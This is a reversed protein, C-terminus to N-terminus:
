DKKGEESQPSAVYQALFLSLGSVIVLFFALLLQLPVADVSMVWYLAGVFVTGVGVAKLTTDLFNVRVPLLRVSAMTAAILAFMPAQTASTFTDGNTYGVVVLSLAIVMVPLSLGIKLARM